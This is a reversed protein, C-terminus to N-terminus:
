KSNIVGTRNMFNNRNYKEKICAENYKMAYPSKDIKDQM